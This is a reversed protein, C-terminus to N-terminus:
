PNTVPSNPRGKSLLGGKHYTAVKNANNHSRGRLYATQMAGKTLSM